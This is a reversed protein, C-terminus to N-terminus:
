LFYSIQEWQMEMSECAKFGPGNVPSTANRSFDWQTPRISLQPIIKETFVDRLNGASQRRILVLMLVSNKGAQNKDSQRLSSETQFFWTGALALPDSFLAVWKREPMIHLYHTLFSTFVGALGHLFTIQPCTYSASRHVCHSHLSSKVCYILCIFPTEIWKDWFM